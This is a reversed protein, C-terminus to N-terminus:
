MKKFTSIEVTAFSYSKEMKKTCSGSELIQLKICSILGLFPMREHLYVNRECLDQIKRGCSIKSVWKSIQVGSECLSVAFMTPSELSLTCIKLIRNQMTTSIVAKIVTKPTQAPPPLPISIRIPEQM